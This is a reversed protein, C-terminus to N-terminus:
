TAHVRRPWMFFPPFWRFRTDSAYCRPNLWLAATIREKQGPVTGVAFFIFIRHSSFMSVRKRSFLAATRDPRPPLGGGTGAGCDQFVLRCRRVRVKGRILVSRRRQRLETKLSRPTAPSIAAARDIKRLEVQMDAQLLAHHQRRALKMCFGHHQRRALKM